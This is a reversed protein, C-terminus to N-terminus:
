KNWFLLGLTSTFLGNEVENVLLVAPGVCALIPEYGSLVYLCNTVAPATSMVLYTRSIALTVGPTMVWFAVKWGVVALVPKGSVVPVTDDVSLATIRSSCATPLLTGFMGRGSRPPRTFVSAM